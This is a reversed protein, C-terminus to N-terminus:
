RNRRHAVFVAEGACFPPCPAENASDAVEFGAHALVRRLAAPALAWRFPERVSALWRGVWTSADVFGPSGDVRPQMASFVLTPPASSARMVRLLRLTARPALYMLVAEAIWLTPRPDNALRRMADADALNAVIRTVTPEESALKARAAAERPHVVEIVDIGLAALAAAVGDCGPALIVARTAGAAVAQQAAQWVFTKRAVYHAAIGPLLMAEVRRLLAEAVRSRLWAPTARVALRRTAPPLDRARGARAECAVGLAVLRATASFSM